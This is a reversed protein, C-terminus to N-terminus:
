ARRSNRCYGRGKARPRSSAPVIKHSAFDTGLCVVGGPCVRRDGQRSLRACVPPDRPPTSLRSLLRTGLAPPRRRGHGLPGHFEARFLCPLPRHVGAIRASSAPRGRAAGPPLRGAPHLRGRGAHRRAHHSSLLRLNELRRGALGDGASSPRQHPHLAPHALGHPLPRPRCSHLLRSRGLLLAPPPASSPALLLLAFFFPGLLLSSTLFRSRSAAANPSSPSRAAVHGTM